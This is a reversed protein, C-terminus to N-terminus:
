CYSTRYTNGNIGLRSESCTERCGRLRQIIRKCLDAVAGHISHQNVSIITRLILEITEESGNFHISKKGKAKSRLEGSELSRTARFIPHSNEEFNLM